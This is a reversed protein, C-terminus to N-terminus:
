PFKVEIGFRPKGRLKISFPSKEDSVVDGVVYDNKLEQAFEVSYGVFLHLGFAGADIGGGIGILPELHSSLRIGGLLHFSNGFTPMKTDVAKFHFNIVAFIAPDLGPKPRVTIKGDNGVVLDVDSVNTLATAIGYSFREKSTNDFVTKAIVKENALDSKVLISLDSFKRFAKPVTYRRVDIYTTEGEESTVEASVFPLPQFLGIFLPLNVVFPSNKATAMLSVFSKGERQRSIFIYFLNDEELGFMRTSFFDDQGHLIGIPSLGDTFNAVLMYYAKDDLVIGAKIILQRLSDVARAYDGAIFWRYSQGFLDNKDAVNFPSGPLPEPVLITREQAFLSQSFCLILLFTSLFKYM